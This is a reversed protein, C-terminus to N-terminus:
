LLLKRTALPITRVIEATPHRPRSPSTIAQPQGTRAAKEVALLVILDALGEEGDPEPATGDLICQSFYAIQGGFHDYHPFRITECGEKTNLLMRMPADFRFGPEMTLDGRTGVVRYMDVESAGFSCYFQALREGPFRLTVAIADDIESFRPDDSPRSATAVVQIPEAAFIHRAANICYIGIDQLPGGWNSAQLRHNGRESQFSFLASFYRPEGIRGGRIAELAAITGPEHHLRYSTMLWVGKDRAASIMAETDAVATAIPKEVMVHKGANAARIAYEAHMSNPVSVYVADILDSQLLADFGDYGVVKRVGYFHALKQAGAPNGSVIATLRSNGTQGIAPMFAEQAIWGAGVVAYRIM